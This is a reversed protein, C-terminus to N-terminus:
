RKNIENNHYLIMYNRSKCMYKVQKGNQYVTAGTAFMYVIPTYVRLIYITWM